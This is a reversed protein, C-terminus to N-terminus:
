GAPHTQEDNTEAELVFFFTAGSGPKAEAWVRGGHRAVIRRVTALGIGTGEFEHAQHLRQFPRFLQESYAMDFGAGNDRVVFVRAGDAEEAASFEIRAEATKSTFKWANGLLNELLVRTLRADAHAALGAEVSLAVKRDPERDRLEKVISEALAALDVRSRRLEQRSIRSLMLLDDILQGMRHTAASIRRLHGAAAEDLKPGHDRVLIRGFGEISRLPARLDHSVTHAFAELEQNAERLRLIARRREAEARHQQTVDHMAIVAGQRHGDIGVLARGTVLVTRAPGHEPAIVM